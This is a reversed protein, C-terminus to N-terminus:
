VYTYICFFTNIVVCRKLEYQVSFYPNSIGKVIRKKANISLICGQVDSVSASM